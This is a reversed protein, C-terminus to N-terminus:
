HCTLVDLSNLAQDLDEETSKRTYVVRRLKPVASM